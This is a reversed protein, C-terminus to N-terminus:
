PQLGGKMQERLMSRVASLARQRAADYGPRLFPQAAMKSTGFELFQGYFAKSKNWSVRYTAQTEGSEDQVFAQYIAARLNGPQFTFKKGKTSHPKDGVPARARVEDYFVQAGAQAAPRVSARAAATLKDYRANISSLDLSASVIM